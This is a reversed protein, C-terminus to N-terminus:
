DTSRYSYIYNDSNDPPFSCEIYAYGTNYAAVSGLNLYTDGQYSAGTSRMGGVSCADGLGACSVANCTIGYSSSRDGVRIIINTINTTSPSNIRDMPCRTILSTGNGFFAAGEFPGGQDGDIGAYMCEYGAFTVTTDAAAVGALLITGLCAGARVGMGTIRKHTSKM